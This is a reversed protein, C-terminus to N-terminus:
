RAINFRDAVQHFTKLELLVLLVFIVAYIM